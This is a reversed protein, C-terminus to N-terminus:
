VDRLFVVLCCTWMMGRVILFRLPFLHPVFLNLPIRSKMCLVDQRMPLFIMRKRMAFSLVGAVRLLILLAKGIVTRKLDIQLVSFLQIGGVLVVFVAPAWGFETMLLILMM